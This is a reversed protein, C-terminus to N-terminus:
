KELKEILTGAIKYVNKLSKLLEDDKCDYYHTLREIKHLLNKNSILFQEENWIYFEAVLATLPEDSENRYTINSDSKLYKRINNQTKIYEDYEMFSWKSKVKVEAVSNYWSLLYSDLPMHCNTFYGSYKEADAFRYLHKFTINVLKQAKGYKLDVKCLEKFKNCIEQCTKSHWEDFLPEEMVSNSFYDIFKNCLWDFIEQKEKFYAGIGKFQRPTMDRYAPGSIIKLLKDRDNQLIFDSIKCDYTLFINQLEKHLATRM